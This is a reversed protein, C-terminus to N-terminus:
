EVRVSTGSWDAAALQKELMLYTPETYGAHTLAHIARYGLREYYARQRPLALRVGLRVRPRGLARARGEVYEILARALGRRRYAPLVALRSFYAYEEPTEYFVCGAPSEGALALVARSYVLKERICEATDE